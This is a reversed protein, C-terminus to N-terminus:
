STGQGFLRQRINSFMSYREFSMRYFQFNTMLCKKIPNLTLIIENSVQKLFAPVLSFKGM